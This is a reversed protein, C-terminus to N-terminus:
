LDITEKDYFEVGLSLAFEKIKIAIDKSSNFSMTFKFQKATKDQKDLNVPSEKKTQNQKIANQEAINIRNQEQLIRNDMEPKLAEIPLNVLYDIDKRLHEDYKNIVEIKEKTQTENEVLDFNVVELQSKVADMLNKSKGSITDKAIQHIDIGQKYKESAESNLILDKTAKIFWNIAENRLNDKFIKVQKEYNLRIERSDANNQTLKDIGFIGQLATVGKAGAVESAKLQKSIDIMFAVDKDTVLVIDQNKKRFNACDTIFEDVLHIDKQNKITLENM